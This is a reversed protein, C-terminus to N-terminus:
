RGIGGGCLPQRRVLGAPVEDRDHRAWSARSLYILFTRLWNEGNRYILFGGAALALLAIPAQLLGGRQTRSPQAAVEKKQKM